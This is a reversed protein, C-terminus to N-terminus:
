FIPVVFAATPPVTAQPAAWPQGGGVGLLVAALVALVVLAVIVWVTRRRRVSTKNQSKKM